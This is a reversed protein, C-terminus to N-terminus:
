LNDACRVFHFFLNTVSCVCARVRVLLDESRRSREPWARACFEWASRRRQLLQLQGSRHLHLQMLLLLEGARGRPEADPQLLVLLPLQM